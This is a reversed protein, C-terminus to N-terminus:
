PFPVSPLPPFSLNGSLSSLVVISVYHGKPSADMRVERGMSRANYAPPADVSEAESVYTVTFAPGV